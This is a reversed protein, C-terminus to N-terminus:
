FNGSGIKVGRVEKEPYLKKRMTNSCRYGILNKPEAVKEYKKDVDQPIVWGM